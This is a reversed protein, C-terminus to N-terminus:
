AGGHTRYRDYLTAPKPIIGTLVLISALAFGAALGGLHAFYGVNGGGNVAGWIDFALWYLYMWISRLKFRGAWIIVWYFCSVRNLPYLVFCMGVVGNVAGSAGIAPAGDFFLHASGALCGFSVYALLFRVNGIRPCVANGFVWLFLMNGFIHRYDFHLFMHGYIGDSVGSKLIYPEIDPRTLIQMRIGAFIAVTAVILLYNTVPRRGMPADVHYPLLLM